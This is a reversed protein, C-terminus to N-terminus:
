VRFHLPEAAAARPALPCAPDGCTQGITRTRGKFLCESCQPPMESGQVALDTGDTFRQCKSSDHHKHPKEMGTTTVKARCNMCTWLRRGDGFTGEHVFDYFVEQPKGRICDYTEGDPFTFKGDPTVIMNAMLWDLKAANDRAAEAADTNRLNFITAQLEDIYDQTRDRDHENAGKREAAESVEIYKQTFHLAKRLDELGNKQWCREVYKTIMYQFFDFGLRVARDWHQEGPIRRYHDGGEQRENAKSESM